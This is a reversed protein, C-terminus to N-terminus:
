IGSASNDLVPADMEKRSEPDMHPALFFLTRMIPEGHYRLTLTLHGNKANFRLSKRYANEAGFAEERKLPPYNKGSYLESVIAQETDILIQAITM